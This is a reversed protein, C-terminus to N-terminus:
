IHFKRTYDAGTPNITREGFEIPLFIIITFVNTNHSFTCISTNQKKQSGLNTFANHKCHIKPTWSYSFQKTDIEFCVAWYHKSKWYKQFSVFYKELLRNELQKQLAYYQQGDSTQICVARAGMTMIVGTQM